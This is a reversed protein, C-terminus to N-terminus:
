RVEWILGYLLLTIGLLAVLDRVISLDIHPVLVLDVFLIANEIALALFFLGCWLLLRVGSRWFGRFLLLCSALATVTCGLYIITGDM